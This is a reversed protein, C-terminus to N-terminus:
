DGQRSSLKKYVKLEPSKKKKIVQIGTVKFFKLSYWEFKFDYQQSKTTRKCM